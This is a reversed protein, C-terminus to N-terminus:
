VGKPYRKKLEQLQLKNIELLTLKKYKKEIDIVSIINVIDICCMVFYILTLEYNNMVIFFGAIIGTISVILWLKKGPKTDWSNRVSIWRPNSCLPGGAM